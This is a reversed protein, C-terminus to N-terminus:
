TADAVACPSGDCGKRKNSFLGYSIGASLEVEAAIHAFNLHSAYLTSSIMGHFSLLSAFSVPLEAPFQLFGLLLKLKSSPFVKKVFIM